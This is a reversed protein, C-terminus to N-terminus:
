CLTIPRPPVAGLVAELHVDSAAKLLAEDVQRRLTWSLVSLTAASFMLMAIALLSAYLFTLRTRISM